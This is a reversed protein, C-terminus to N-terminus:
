KRTSLVDSSAMKSPDQSDEPNGGSSGAGFSFGTSMDGKIM